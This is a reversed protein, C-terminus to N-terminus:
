LPAVHWPVVCKWHPTESIEKSASARFKTSAEQRKAQIARMAGKAPPPGPREIPLAQMMEQRVKAIANGIAQVQDVGLRLRDQVEPQIFAQPGNLQL